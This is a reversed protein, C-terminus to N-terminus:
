TVSPRIGATAEFTGEPVQQPGVARAKSWSHDTGQAASNRGCFFHFCGRAWKEFQTFRLSKSFPCGKNSRKGVAFGTGV